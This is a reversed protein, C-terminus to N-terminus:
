SAGRNETPSSIWSWRMAIQTRPSAPVWTVDRPGVHRMAVGRYPIPAGSYGRLPAGGLRIVGFPHRPLGAM